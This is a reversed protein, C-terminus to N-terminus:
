IKVRMSPYPYESMCRWNLYVDSDEEFGFM